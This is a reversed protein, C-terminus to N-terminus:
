SCVALGMIKFTKGGTLEYSVQLSSGPQVAHGLSLTEPYTESTNKAHVGVLDRESLRRWDANDGSKESVSVSLRSGEWKEGYSKMIFFTVSGISQSLNPFELVMKDGLNTPMYGKKGGEDVLKWGKSETARANFIETVWTVNNQHTSLGSIWSFVCRSRPAKDCAVTEKAVDASRWLESVFELNLSPTLNPPLGGPPSKPKGPINSYAGRLPILDSFKTSQYDQLAPEHWYDEMSCFTTALNLMDYAIVWQAVIHMGITITSIM